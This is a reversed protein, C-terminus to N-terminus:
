RRRGPKEYPTPLSPHTDFPALPHPLEITILDTSNVITEEWRRGM